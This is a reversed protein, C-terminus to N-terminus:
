RRKYTIFGLATFIGAWKGMTIAYIQYIEEAPILSVQLSMLYNIDTYINPLYM